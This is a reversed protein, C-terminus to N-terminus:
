IVWKHECQEAIPAILGLKTAVDALEYTWTLYIQLPEKRHAEEIERSSWESTAWYLAQYFTKNSLNWSSSYLYCVWGKEIVFNFARVVEEMPVSCSLTLIHVMGLPYLIHRNSWSSSRIHRGRLGNATKCSFRQYGRNHKFVYSSRKHSPNTPPIVSQKRSLGTDNPSGTARPGWFIKM